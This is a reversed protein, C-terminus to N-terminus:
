VRYGVSPSKRRHRLAGGVLAFGGVMLAWSAPEPVPAITVFFTGPTSLGDLRYPAARPRFIPARESGAYLQFNAADFLYDAFGSPGTRSILLGGGPTGNFFTLDAIGTAGGFSGGVDTLSFSYGDFVYDSPPTPASSLVFSANYDGSITFRVQADAPASLLAVLAVCAALVMATLKM